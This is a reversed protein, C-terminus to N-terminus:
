RLILVVMGGPTERGRKIDKGPYERNRLERIRAMQACQYAQWDKNSMDKPRRIKAYRRYSSFVHVPTSLLSM